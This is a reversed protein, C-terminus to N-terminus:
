QNGNRWLLDRVVGLAAAKTVLQQSSPWCKMLISFTHSVFVFYIAFVVRKWRKWYMKLKQNQFDAWRNWSSAFVRRGVANSQVYCCGYLNHQPWNTPDRFLSTGVTSNLCSIVFLDSFCELIIIRWHTGSHSNKQRKEKQRTFRPGNTIEERAQFLWDAKM